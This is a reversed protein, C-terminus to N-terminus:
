KVGLFEGINRVWLDQQPFPIEIGHQRFLETIKYRIESKVFEIRLYERSYFHLEFDLSSGGFDRFQVAPEPKKLVDPHSRAAQLLLSTVKKVDSSYAVGVSVQFRTPYANHSWNVVNDVVLKSNPIIITIDDQSEVKSTRIGIKKVTGIIGDVKVVDGVDVTGESLLIVGSVLDNFTQQLGLGVGVLLAAAGGWLVSLHFGLMQLAWIVALTYVIYKIIAHIAFQRGIDVKRSNFFRRLFVKEILWILYKAGFLIVLASLVQALNLSYGAIELFPYELIEILGM